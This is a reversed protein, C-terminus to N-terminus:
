YSSWKLQRIPQFSSHLTITNLLQKGNSQSLLLAWESSGVQSLEVLLNGDPSWAAETATPTPSASCQMSGLHVLQTNDNGLALLWNSSSFLFSPQNAIPCLPPYALLPPPSPSFLGLQHPNDQLLAFLSLSPNFAFHLLSRQLSNPIEVPTRIGSSDASYLQPYAQEVAARFYFHQNDTWVLPGFAGWDAGVGLTENPHLVTICKPAAAARLLWVGVRMDTKIRALVALYTSDPSWAFDLVNTTATTLGTCSGFLLQQPTTDGIETTWFLQGQGQNTNILIALGRNDEAFAIKQPVGDGQKLTYHKGEYGHFIEYKKASPGLAIALRNGDLSVDFFLIPANFAYEAFESLRPLYRHMTSYAGFDEVWWLASMLSDEAEGGCQGTSNSGPPTINPNGGLCVGLSCTQGGSCRM